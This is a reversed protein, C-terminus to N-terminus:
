EWETGRCSGAYLHSRIICLIKECVESRLLRSYLYEAHFPKIKTQREPLFAVRGACRQKTAKENSTVRVVKMEEQIRIDRHLGQEVHWM